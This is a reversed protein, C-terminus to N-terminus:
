TTDNDQAARRTSVDEFTLLTAVVEGRDFIPTMISDVVLASGDSMWFTDAMARYVRGEVRARYNPCDSENYRSGDRHSHHIIAHQDKGILEDVTYGLMRLAAANAFTTVGKADTALMGTGVADLLRVSQLKAARIEDRSRMRYEIEDSVSAAIDTLTEVDNASWERPERDVVCLTGLVPVEEGGEAPGHIPVALYAAIGLERTAHATRVLEHTFSDNVVFPKRTWVVHKCYTNGVRRPKRWMANDEGPETHVAVPLKVRETLVSVQAVKAHLARAAIRAARNLAPIAHASELLGSRRVADLRIRNTIARKIKDRRNEPADPTSDPPSTM